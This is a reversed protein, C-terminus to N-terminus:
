RVEEPWIEEPPPFPEVEGLTLTVCARVAEYGRYHGGCRAMLHTPSEFRDALLPDTVTNLAEYGSVWGFKLYKDAGRLRGIIFTVANLHCRARAPVTRLRRPDGM